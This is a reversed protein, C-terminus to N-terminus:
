RSSAEAAHWRKEDVGKILLWFVFPLEGAIAAIGVFSALMPASEPVLLNGVGNASYALAALAMLPGFVRPFYGSRFVLAAVIFCHLGFFVEWVHVSQAHLQLAFLALAEAQGADLGSLYPAGSMLELAALSPILNVGQVVTMGLRAFTAVLALTRGAPRLVAYLVATLVVELLVVSADGLLGLRFLSESAVLHSATAMADGPVLIVSPVYMMSFPAVLAVLLYLLGAVRATTTPSSPIM